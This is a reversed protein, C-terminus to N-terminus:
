AAQGIAFTPAGSARIQERRLVPVPLGDVLTVGVLYPEVVTNSQVHRQGLAQFEEAQEPTLAVMARTIAADWGDPGLFVAHGDVLDNATIVSPTFQKAM